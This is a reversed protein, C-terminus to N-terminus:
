SCSNVTIIKFLVITALVMNTNETMSFSIMYLMTSDKLGPKNMSNMPNNPCDYAAAVNNSINHSM